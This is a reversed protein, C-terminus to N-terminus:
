KKALTDINTYESASKRTRTREYTERFNEWSTDAKINWRPEYIRKKKDPELNVKIEICNHDSGTTIIGEDDIWVKSVLKYMDQDAIVYDIISKQNRRGWTWRGTCRESENMIQLHLEKVMDLVLSGNINTKQVEESGEFRIHANMDGIILTKGGEQGVKIVEEKISHIIEKNKEHHEKKETGLYNCIITIEGGNTRITVALVDSQKGIEREYSKIEERVLIAM